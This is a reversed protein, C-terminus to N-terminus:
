QIEDVWPFTKIWDYLIPMGESLEVTPQWGLSRLKDTSLRKIAIKKNPTDVVEILGYPAGALNCCMAAIELMSIEDDDRGINFAGESGTKIILEYGRCLDEIWCWSRASGRHVTIPKRHHAQWLMNDMARRGKGPAVGPGYPMSPRVIVLGEPAYERAAEEAWRKSISYIGTAKGILPDDENVVQEGHDGYVESTSTHILRAGFKACAKAVRLTMIANSNIAHVCDQENFYIGVQAALHIVIEPRYKAVLYEAEGNERLDGDQFDVGKVNYGQKTLHKVLNVGIFGKAGTILISTM